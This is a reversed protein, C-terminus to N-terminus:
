AVGGWKWADDQERDAAYDHPKGLLEPLQNHEPHADGQPLRDAPWCGAGEYRLSEPASVFSQSPCFIIYLEGVKKWLM